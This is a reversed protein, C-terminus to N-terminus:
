PASEPAGFRRVPSASFEGDRYYRIPNFVIKMLEYDADRLGFAQEAIDRYSQASPDGAVVAFGFKRLLNANTVSRTPADLGPVDHLYRPPEFRRDGVRHVLLRFDTLTSPTRSYMDWASFPYIEHRGFAYLGLGAVAALLAFLAPRGLRDM